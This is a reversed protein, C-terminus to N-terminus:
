NSKEEKEKKKDFALFDDKADRLRGINIDKEKVEKALNQIQKVFGKKKKDEAQAVQVDNQNGSRFEITIPPLKKETEAEASAIAEEEMPVLLEKEPENEAILVEQTEITRPEQIEPTTAKEQEVENTELAVAREEVIVPVQDPSVSEETEVPLEEEEQNDAILPAQTIKQQEETNQASM